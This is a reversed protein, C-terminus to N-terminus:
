HSLHNGFNREEDFLNDTIFNINNYFQFNEKNIGPKIAPTRQPDIKVPTKLPEPIFCIIFIVISFIGKRLRSKDIKSIHSVLGLHETTRIPPHRLGMMILMFVWFTWGPSVFVALFILIGLFIYAIYVQRKGLFVYAIHGGDLQGIPFLNIATVFLGVWGAFAVPHLLLTYGEPIDTFLKISLDFLISTGFIMPQDGIIVGPENLNLPVKESLYLGIVIAPLSTFFSMAPGWFSIDFLARRDPPLSKMRIFAGLTGFPSLFPLPIFYPLTTEVGYERANIYHGFEHSLLIIVLVVTYLIGGALKEAGTPYYSFRYYTLTMSLFTAVALFIHKRWIEPSIGEVSFLFRKIINKREHM